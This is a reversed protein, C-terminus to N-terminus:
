TYKVPEDFGIILVFDGMFGRKQFLITTLILDFRVFM